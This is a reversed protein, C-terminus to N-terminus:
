KLGEKADTAEKPPPLRNEIKKWWKKKLEGKLLGLTILNHYKGQHFIQERLLGEEQFGFQKLYALSETETELLTAFTRPLKWRRFLNQLM